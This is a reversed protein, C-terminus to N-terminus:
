QDAPILFPLALAARAPMGAALRWAVYAYGAAVIASLVLVFPSLLRGM